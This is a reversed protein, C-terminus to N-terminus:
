RGPCIALPSRDRNRRRGYSSAVGGSGRPFGLTRGGVKMRAPGRDNKWLNYLTGRSIRHLRCFEDVGMALPENKEM